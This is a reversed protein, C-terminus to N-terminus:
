KKRIEIEIRRNQKRGEKTRNSRLPKTEGYGIANLQSANCGQDVLLKKIKEARKQSLALNLDESGVSDTHGSIEVTNEVATKKIIDSIAAIEKSYDELLEDTGSKFLIKETHISFPNAEGTALRQNTKCAILCISVLFVIRKM